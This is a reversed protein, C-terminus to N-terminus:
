TAAPSSFFYFGNIPVQNEGKKINRNIASNLSASYKLGPLSRGAEGISTFPENKVPVFRGDEV